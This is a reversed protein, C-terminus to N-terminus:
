RVKYRVFGRVVWGGVRAPPVVGNGCKNGGSRREHLFLLAFDIPPSVANMIITPGFWIM